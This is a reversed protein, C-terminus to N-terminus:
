SGEEVPEGIAVGERSDEEVAENRAAADWIGMEKMESGAIRRREM